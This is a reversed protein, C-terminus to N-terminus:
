RLAVLHPCPWANYAGRWLCRPVAPSVRAHVAEEGRCCETKDLMPLSVFFHRLVTHVPTIVALLNPQNCTQIDAPQLNTTARRIRAGRYRRRRMHEVLRTSVSRREIRREVEIRNPSGINSPMTPSANLAMEGIRLAEVTSYRNLSLSVHDGAISLSQFAARSCGPTLGDDFPSAHRKASRPLLGSKLYYRCASSRSISSGRTAM